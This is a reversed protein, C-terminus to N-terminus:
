ADQDNHIEKTSATPHWLPIVTDTGRLEFTGDVPQGPQLRPEGDLYGILRVEPHETLEVLMITYPVAFAPHVQHRVVTWSYIRGHVAVDRWILEASGCFPCRPRPL